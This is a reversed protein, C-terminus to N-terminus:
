AVLWRGETRGGVGIANLVVIAAAILWGVMLVTWNQKGVVGNGVCTCFVDICMCACLLLQFM